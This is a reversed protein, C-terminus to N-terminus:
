RKKKRRGFLGGLCSGCVCAAACVSGQATEAGGAGFLVFVSLLLMFMILGVACWKLVGGERGKERYSLGGILGGILSAVGPVIGSEGVSLYGKYVLYAALGIVSTTTVFGLLGSKIIGTVTNVWGTPREQKRYKGKAASM